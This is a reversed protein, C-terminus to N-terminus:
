PIRHVGLVFIFTVSYAVLQEHYCLSASSFPLYIPELLVVEQWFIYKGFCDAKICALLFCIQNERTWFDGQMSKSNDYLFEVMNRRRTSLAIHLPLLGQNTPIDILAENEKLLIEAMKVDGNSVALCFATYSNNNQLELDKKEMLSVLNKVFARHGRSVAVHLATENNRNISSKILDEKKGLINKAAKWDGRMSAKHLPVCLELYEERRGDLCNM